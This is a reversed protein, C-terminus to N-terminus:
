VRDCIEVHALKHCQWGPGLDSAVYTQAEVFRAGLVLATLIVFPLAVMVMKQYAPVRMDAEQSYVVKPRFPGGPKHVLECHMGM